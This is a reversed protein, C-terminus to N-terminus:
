QRYQKELEYLASFLVTFTTDKSNSDVLEGYYENRLSFFKNISKELVAVENESLDQIKLM